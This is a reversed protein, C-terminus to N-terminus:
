HETPHRQVVMSHRRARTDGFVQALSPIPELSHTKMHISAPFHRNRDLGVAFDISSNDRQIQSRLGCFFRCSGQQPARSLLKPRQPMAFGDASGPARSLRLSRFEASAISLWGAVASVPDSSRQQRCGVHLSALGAITRRYGCSRWRHLKTRLSGDALAGLMIARHSISKDGPLRIKGIIM